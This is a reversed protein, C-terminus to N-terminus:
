SKEGLNNSHKIYNQENEVMEIVAETFFYEASRLLYHELADIDNSWQNQYSTNRIEDLQGTIENMDALIRREEDSLEDAALYQGIEDVKIKDANNNYLYNFFAGFDVFMNFLNNNTSLSSVKDYNRYSFLAGYLFTLERHLTSIKQFQSYSYNSGDEDYYIKGDAISQHITRHISGVNYESVFYSLAADVAAEYKEARKHYIVNMTISTILAIALLIIALLKYQRRLIGGGGSLESM